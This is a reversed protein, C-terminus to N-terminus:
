GGSGHKLLVTEIAAINVRTQKNEYAPNEQQADSHSQNAQRIV